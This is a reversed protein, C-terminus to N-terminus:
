VMELGAARLCTNVYPHLDAGIRDVWVFEGHHNDLRVQVSRQRSFLFFCTNVSHVAIGEPGDDFITEDTHIIPGVHCDLGVEDRAKRAAAHRLSEGKHVRGGPLWLHGKAPADRRRVLLVCGDNVIAVDVCVLPVAKIIQKYLPWPVYTM